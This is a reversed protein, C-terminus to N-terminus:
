NNTNLAAAIADHFSKNSSGNGNAGNGNNPPDNPNTGSPPTPKQEGFLFSTDESKILDNIQETLGTLKGDKYAIKDMDLLAAVAKVNKAKADRIASEVAYSKQLNLIKNEFETKVQSNTNELETIKATLTENDKVSAKLTNLQEDRQKLQNQLETIQTEYTENKGKIANIDRGNEAMISDIVPQETIGLNRLFETKM